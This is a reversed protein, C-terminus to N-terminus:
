TCFFVFKARSHPSVYHVHDISHVFQMPGSVMLIFTAFAARRTLRSYMLLVDVCVNVARLEEMRVGVDFSIM